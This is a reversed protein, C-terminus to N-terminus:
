KKPSTSTELVQKSMLTPVFSGDLGPERCRTCTNDLLM